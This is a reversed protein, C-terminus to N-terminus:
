KYRTQHVQDLLSDLEVVAEENQQYNNGIGESGVHKLLKDDPLYADPPLITLFGLNESILELFDLVLLLLYGNLNLM